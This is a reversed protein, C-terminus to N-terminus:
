DGTRCKEDQEGNMMGERKEKNFRKTGGGGEAKM